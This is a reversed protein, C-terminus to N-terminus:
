NRPSRKRVKTSGAIKAIKARTSAAEINASLSRYIAPVALNPESHTTKNM